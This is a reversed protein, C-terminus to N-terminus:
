IFYDVILEKIFYIICLVLYMISKKHQWVFESEYVDFCGAHAREVVADDFYRNEADFVILNGACEVRKYIWLAIERGFDCHEGANSGTIEFISGCEVVYFFINEFNEGTANEDRVVDAEIVAKEFVFKASNIDRKGGFVEARDAKGAGEIGLKGM